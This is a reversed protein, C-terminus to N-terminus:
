LGVLVLDEDDLTVEIRETVDVVRRVEVEELRRTPVPDRRVAVTERANAFGSLAWRHELHRQTEFALDFIAL